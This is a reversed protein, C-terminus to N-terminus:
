QANISMVLQEYTVGNHAVKSLRSLIKLSPTHTGQMIMTIYSAAVGSERAFQRISRNGKALEVFKATTNM